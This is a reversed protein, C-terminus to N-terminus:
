LTPVTAHLGHGLAGVYGERPNKNHITATFFGFFRRKAQPGAAEILQRTFFHRLKDLGGRFASLM